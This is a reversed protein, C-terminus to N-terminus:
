PQEHEREAYGAPHHSEIREPALLPQLVNMAHERGREFDAHIHMDGGSGRHADIKTFIQDTRHHRPDFTARPMASLARDVTQRALLFARRYLLGCPKETRQARDARLAPEM